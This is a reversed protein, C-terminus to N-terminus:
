ERDILNLATARTNRELDIMLQILDALAILMVGYVVSSILGGLIIAVAVGTSGDGGNDSGAAAVGLVISAIAGGAMVIWGLIRLVASISTLAGYRDEVPLVDNDADEEEVVDDDYDDQAVASSAAENRRDGCLFCYLAKDPLQTGCKPCNM